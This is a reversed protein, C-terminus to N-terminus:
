VADVDQTKEPDIAKAVVARTVIIEEDHEEGGVKEAKRCTLCSLSPMPMCDPPCGCYVGKKKTDHKLQLLLSVPKKDPDRLAEVDMNSHFLLSQLDCRTALETAGETGNSLSYQGFQSKIIACIANRYRETQHDSPTNSTPISVEKEFFTPRNMIDGDLNIICREGVRKYFGKPITPIPDKNCILAFHCPTMEDYEYAFSRNGVRPAGFTYVRAQKGSLPHSRAWAHSALTALAGGLSHGTFCIDVDDFSAGSKQCAAELREMLQKDYGGSIYSNWFGTHVQVFDKVYKNIVGKGIRKFRKPPQITKCFRLDTKVNEFSSTGKFAALVRKTGPAWAILCKTDVVKNWVVEYDTLGVSALAVDLSCYGEKEDISYVICSWYLLKCATEICLMPEAVLQESQPLHLNRQAIAKPLSAETWAFEQLWTQLLEDTSAPDKPMLFFALLLAVAASSVQMPINAVWVFIYTWCSSLEILYLLAASVALIIFAWTIQYTIVSFLIRVTRVQVFPRSKLDLRTRRWFYMYTGLYAAFAVVLLVVSAVKAGTDTVTCNVDLYNCTGPPSGAPQLVNRKERSRKLNSLFILTLFVQFFAFVPFKFLHMSLPADMVLAMHANEAAPAHEGEGTEEDGSTSPNKQSTKGHWIGCSHGAILYLFFLVNFLSWQMYGLVLVPTNYWGCSGVYLYVNSSLWLTCNCSQVVLIILTGICLFARRRAWVRNNRRADWLRNTFRLLSILLFFLLASAICIDILFLSDSVFLTKYPDRSGKISNQLLTAALVVFGLLVQSFSAMRAEGSSTIEVRLIVDKVM